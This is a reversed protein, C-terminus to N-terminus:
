NNDVSADNNSILQWTTGDECLWVLIDGTDATIDASSGDLNHSADQATTTDFTLSHKALVTIIKGAYGDDFDTITTTDATTFRTGILVSPTGDTTGFAILGTGIDQLIWRKDGANNDPKIIGPSSETAASDADLRYFYTIGDASVLAPDGDNLTSGDYWDLAGSTGGTLSTAGIAGTLAFAQTSLFLSLFILISLLKKM